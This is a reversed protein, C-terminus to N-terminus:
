SCGVKLAKLINKTKKLILAKANKYVPNKYFFLTYKHVQKKIPTCGPYRATFIPHTRRLEQGSEDNDFKVMMVVVEAGKVYYGMLTGLLGNCLGDKVDLNVTLMLKCGVKVYLTQLYPTNAVTRKKPDIKPLYNPINDHINIAESILLKTKLESLCQDNFRNVAEHKCAIVLAGKLDPHGEPRVREQLLSMDEVTQHGVRIRNLIDAYHADGKQRHNEVLSIVRFLEWHPQVLFAHLYEISRPQAWIYDGMVPRLQMIDEFFFLAVGGFLQNPRMTIERLRLDLQYLQDAKVM